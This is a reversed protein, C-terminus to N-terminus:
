RVMKPGVIGVSMKKIELLLPEIFRENFITDPNAFLIYKGNAKTAGLNCGGGFGLNRDSVMIKTKHRSLSRPIKKPSSNDVIIIEYSVNNLAKRLSSVSRLLEKPTNYYVYVISVNIEKRM